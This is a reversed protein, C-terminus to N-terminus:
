IRVIRHVHTTKSRIDSTWTDIKSHAQVHMPRDIAKSFSSLPKETERRWTDIRSHPNIQIPRNVPRKM